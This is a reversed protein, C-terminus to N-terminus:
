LHPNPIGLRQGLLSDWTKQWLTRHPRAKVTVTYFLPPETVPREKQPLALIAEVKRRYEQIDKKLKPLGMVRIVHNAALTKDSMPTMKVKFKLEPANNIQTMMKDVIGEFLDCVDMIEEWYSKGPERVIPARAIHLEKRKVSKNVASKVERYQKHGYNRDIGARNFLRKAISFLEAHRQDKNRRAFDQFNKWDLAIASVEGNDHFKVANIAEALLQTRDKKNYFALAMAFTIYDLHKQFEGSEATFKKSPGAIDDVPIVAADAGREQLEEGIQWQPLVGVVLVKKGTLDTKDNLHLLDRVERGGHYNKRETATEQSM